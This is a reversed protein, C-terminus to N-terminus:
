PPPAKEQTTAAPAQSPAGLTTPARSSAAPAVTMLKRAKAPAVATPSAPAATKPPFSLHVRQDEDGAKAVVHQTVTNYHVVDATMLREGPVDGKNFGKTVHQMVAQTLKANTILVIENNVADYTIELAEGYMPEGTDPQQVFTAPNGTVDATSLDNNVIHLIAKDSHLVISGQTIVVHGTYIGTGNSNNKPDAKFDGHDAHINIPQSKDSKLAWAPAAALLSCLCILRLIPKTNPPLSM